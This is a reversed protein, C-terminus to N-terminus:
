EPRDHIGSFCRVVGNDDAILLENGVILPAAYFEGRSEYEWDRPKGTALDLRILRGDTAAIWVDDGDIVVEDHAYFTQTTGGATMTMATLGEGADEEVFRFELTVKAPKEGAGTCGALALVCLLLIVRKM